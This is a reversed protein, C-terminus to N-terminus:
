YNRTNNATNAAAETIAGNTNVVVTFPPDEFFENATPSVFCGSHTLFTFVRVSSNQRTFTFNRTEGPNLGPVTETDLVQTGTKLQAAFATNVDATGVNTAGWIPNPITIVKSQNGSMGSCANQFDIEFFQTGNETFSATQFRRRFINVMNARPAIDTFLAPATGVSSTLPPNIFGTNTQIGTGSSITKDLSGNYLFKFATGSAMDGQTLVSDFLHLQSTGSQLFELEIEARTSTAGDLIRANRFGSSPQLEAHDLKTGTVVLRVIQNLPINSSPTISAISGRRVVRVKFTDPGNTEIAYHMTVTREGPDAGSSVNFKVIISSGSGSKRTGYSVSVGSGTIEVSTSLDVFQGVVEFSHSEGPSIKQVVGRDCGVFCALTGKITTISAEASTTFAASFLIGLIISLQIRNM